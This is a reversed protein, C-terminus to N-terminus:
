DYRLGKNTLNNGTLDLTALAKLEKGIHYLLDHFDGLHCGSLDLDTVCTLLLNIELEYNNIVQLRGLKASSLFEQGYADM